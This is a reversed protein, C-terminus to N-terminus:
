LNEMHNHNKFASIRALKDPDLKEILLRNIHADRAQLVLQEKSSQTILSLIRSDKFPTFHLTQEIHWHQHDNINREMVADKVKETDPDITGVDLGKELYGQCHKYHYDMPQLVDSLGTGHAQLMMEMTYPGRMFNEDGMAGSVLVCDDTWLHTQKYGWFQSLKSFNRKWFPTLKLYEYDVMEYDKTFHDLYAWAMTTDMGGTVFMKLPSRNHSLFSDFTEMLIEHVNDVIAADSMGTTGGDRPKYWQRSVNFENDVTLECDAWAQEGMPELNTITDNGAWLPFSRDTDHTITVRGDRIVMACFNGRLQPAGTNAACHRAAETITRDNAYGKIMVRVDTDLEVMCWGNDHALCLTPTLWTQVPFNMAPQTSLAFFM